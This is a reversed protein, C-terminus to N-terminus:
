ALQLYASTTSCSKQAPAVSFLDIRPALARISRHPKRLSRALFIIEYSLAFAIAVVAFAFLCICRGRWQNKAKALCDPAVATLCKNELAAM